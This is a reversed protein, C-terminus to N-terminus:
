ASEFMLGLGIKKQLSKDIYEKLVYINLFEKTNFILLNCTLVFKDFYYFM